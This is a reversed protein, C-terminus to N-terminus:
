LISGIESKELFFTRKKYFKIYKKYFICDPKQLGGLLSKKLGAGEMDPKRGTEGTSVPDPLFIM